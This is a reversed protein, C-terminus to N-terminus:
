SNWNVFTPALSINLIKKIRSFCRSHCRKFTHPCRQGNADNELTSLFGTAVTSSRNKNLHLAQGHIMRKNPVRAIRETGSCRTVLPKLNKWMNHPPFPIFWIFWSELNSKFSIQHTEFCLVVLQLRSSQLTRQERSPRDPGPVAFSQPAQPDNRRLAAMNQGTRCRPIQFPFFLYRAPVQYM